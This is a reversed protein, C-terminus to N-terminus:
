AATEKGLRAREAGVDIAMHLCIRAEGVVAVVIPIAVAHAPRPSPKGPAGAVVATM